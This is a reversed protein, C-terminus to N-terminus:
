GSVPEMERESPLFEDLISREQAKGKNASVAISAVLDALSTVPRASLGDPATIKQAETINFKRLIYIEPPIYNWCNNLAM